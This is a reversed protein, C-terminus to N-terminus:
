WVGGGSARSARRRRPPSPARAPLRRAPRVMSSAEFCTPLHPRTRAHFSVHVHAISFRLETFDLSVSYCSLLIATYFASSPFFARFISLETQRPIGLKGKLCYNIISNLYRTLRYLRKDDNRSWKQIRSSLINMAKILDPRALRAIWLQKMVLACAHPAIEGSIEDDSLVFSSDPLFPTTAQRFKTVGTLKTHMEVSPNNPM